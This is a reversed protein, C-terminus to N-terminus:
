FNVGFGLSELSLFHFLFSLVLCSFGFFSETEDWLSRKEAFLDLVIMRSNPVGSLYAEVRDLTWYRQFLFLWGQMLWVANPDADIMGDIVAKSSQKLSAADSFPVANENWSDCSYISDTGYLSTQLELFRKGIVPFLPDSAHLTTTPPFGCWGEDINKPRHFQIPTGKAKMVGELAPPIHGAFAPLVSLMGFERMRRVIKRQLEYRQRRWGKPQPSMYSDMNNMRHWALFSPGPFYEELDKRSVGFELWLKEWVYEQGELALFM